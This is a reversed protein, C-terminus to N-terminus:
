LFVLVCVLLGVFFNSLSIFFFVALFLFRVVAVVIGVCELVFIFELAITEEVNALVAIVGSLGVSNLDTEGLAKDILAAIERRVVIVFLLVVLVIVLIIVVIVTCFSPVLVNLVSVLMFFELVFTMVRMLLVVLVILLLSFILVVVELAVGLAILEIAFDLVTVFAFPLPM